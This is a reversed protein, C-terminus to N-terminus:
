YVGVFQFEWGLQKDIARAERKTGSIARLVGPSCRIPEDPTRFKM